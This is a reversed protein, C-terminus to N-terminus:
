GIPTLAPFPAIPPDPIVFVSEEKFIAVIRYDSTGIAPNFPDKCTIITVRADGSLDLILHAPATDLAYVFVSELMFNLSSGDAYEIEMKDGVTLTDLYMLQGIEGRWKNHGGMLANGDNGPIPSERLWSITSASDAIEMTYMPDPDTDEIPADLNLAPIRMWVPWFELPEREIEPEAVFEQIPEPLPLLEDIDTDPPEEIEPMVVESSPAHIDM